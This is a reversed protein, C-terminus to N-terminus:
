LPQHATCTITHNIARLPPLKPLPPRYISSFEKIWKQHFPELEGNLQEFTPKAGSPTQMSKPPSPEETNSSM